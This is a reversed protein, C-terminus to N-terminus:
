IQLEKASIQKHLEKVKTFNEAKFAAIVDIRLNEIDAGATNELKQFTTRAENIKTSQAETLKLEDMCGMMPHMQMNHQQHQKMMPNARQDHKRAVLVGVALLVILSIVFLKKM